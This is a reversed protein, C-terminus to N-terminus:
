ASIKNLTSFLSKFNNQKLTPNLRAMGYCYKSFSKQKLNLKKILTTFGTSTTQHQKLEAIVFREFNNKTNGGEYECDLDFSLREEQHKNILTIRRYNIKIVPKLNAADDPLVKSIFATGAASLEDLSSKELVRTKITRGKNTKHKIEIYNTQSDIYRRQRVKHRNLKGHHHQHYLKLDDTDYYLNEYKLIRKGSVELIFYASQIETLVALFVPVTLVFKCETRDMLTSSELDDLSISEFNQIINELDLM